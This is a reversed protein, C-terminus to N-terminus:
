NAEPTGSQQDNLLDVFSQSRRGTTSSPDIGAAAEWQEKAKDIRGDSFFVIALSYHADQDDPHDELVRQLTTEARKSDGQAHWVMALGVQATASDPELELADAYAHEAQALHQAMFYANGLDILVGVDGPDEARKSELISIEVGSDADGDADADPTGPDDQDPTISPHGTPLAGASAEANAGATARDGSNMGVIVVAAAVAVAAGVAILALSRRL